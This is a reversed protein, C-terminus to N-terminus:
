KSTQWRKHVNLKTNMRDHDKKNMVRLNEPRNDLTNMNIHDVIEDPTLYRGILKEMVLWHERVYGAKNAYPHNPMYIQKYPNGPMRAQTLRWGKYNHPTHGKKFTTNPSFSKGKFSNNACALSCYKGRGEAIRSPYTQYTKGCVCTLIISM